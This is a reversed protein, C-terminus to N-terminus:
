PDLSQPDFVPSPLRPSRRENSTKLAKRAPPTKACTLLFLSILVQTLVTGSNQAPPIRRFLQFFPAVRRSQVPSRSIVFIVTDATVAKGALWKWVRLYIYRTSFLLHM